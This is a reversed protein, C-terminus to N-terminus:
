AHARRRAVALLVGGIGLLMAARGILSNLGSNGTAPLEGPPSPPAPTPPPPSPPPPSPPYGPPSTTTTTSAVTTTTPALTTTTTPPPLTLPCDAEPEEQGHIAVELVLSRNQGDQFVGGVPRDPSADVRIPNGGGQLVEDGPTGVYKCVFVQHDASAPTSTALGFGLVALPALILGSVVKCPEVRWLRKTHTM